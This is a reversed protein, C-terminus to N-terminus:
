LDSILVQPLLMPTQCLEVVALSHTQEEAEFIGGTLQETGKQLPHGKSLKSHCTLRREDRRTINQQPNSPLPAHGEAAERLSTERQTDVPWLLLTALNFLRVAASSIM